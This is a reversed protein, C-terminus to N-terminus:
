SDFRQFGHFRYGSAISDVVVVLTLCCEATLNAVTDPKRIITYDMQTVGVSVTFLRLLFRSASARSMM